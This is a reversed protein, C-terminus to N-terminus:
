THCLRRGRRLCVDRTYFLPCEWTLLLDRIHCLLERPPCPDNTRYRRRRLTGLDRTRCLPHESLPRRGQIRSHRRQRSLRPSLQSLPDRTRCRRHRPRRSSPSRLRVLRRRLRPRSPMLRCRRWLPRPMRRSRRNPRRRQGRLFRVSRRQSWPRPQWIPAVQRRRCIHWPSRHPCTCPPSHPRHPPTHLRHRPVSRPTLYSARQCLRCTLQPAHCTPCRASPLRAQRQRM